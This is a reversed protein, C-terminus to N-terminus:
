SRSRQAGFLQDYRSALMSDIFSSWVADPQWLDNMLAFAREYEWNQKIVRYLGLFVTVRMNAACHIWIKKGAHATMADFFKLLAEKTPASFQVPIHIYTMGLAKVIGAEDALSYRPDDHLALNIVTAFGAAAIEHLQAETPQGSTALLADAVRYNRINNFIHDTMAQPFFPQM